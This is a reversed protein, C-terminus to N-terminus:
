RHHRGFAGTKMGRSKSKQGPRKRRAKKYTSPSGIQKAM